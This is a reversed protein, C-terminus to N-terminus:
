QVKKLKKIKRAPVGGWMENPPIDINVFSDMAVVSNEGITVGARISSFAGVLANRGISVRGLRIHKGTFEHCLINVKWGIIANDGITILEPYSPDIDTAMAIGVNKGINMGTLARFIIAKLRLPLYKGISIVIANFIMKAPNRLNTWEYLVNFDQNHDLLLVPEKSNLFSKIKDRMIVAM